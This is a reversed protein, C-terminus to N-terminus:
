EGVAHYETSAGEYSTALLTPVYKASLHDLLVMRGEARESAGGVGEAPAAGAGLPM